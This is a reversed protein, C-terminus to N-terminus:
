KGLLSPQDLPDYEQPPIVFILSLEELNGATPKAELDYYYDGEKLLNIKTVEAVRLGAPFVGDLGTTILLDGVKLIPMTFAKASGNSNIIPAGTRLDRAPGEEDAFDYNFGIGQLLSNKARWLPKSSGFLEGKALYWSEQKLDLRSLVNEIQKLFRNKEEIDKFLENRNALQLSISDMKEYLDRNQIGGRAARVSPTLGSDTILRVRSQHVGVYDIVGVVSTDVLVPSNKAIWTKGNIQNDASGVSIWLSSNWSAPSRYIVRAPIAQIPRKSFLEKEHPILERLQVLENELFQKELKLRAIVENATLELQSSSMHKFGDGFPDQVFLKARVFFGFFPSFLAITSGRISESVMQPVSMLVLLVALISLYLYPPKRRM